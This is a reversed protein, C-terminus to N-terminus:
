SKSARELLATIRARADADDRQSAASATLAQELMSKAEDHRGVRLLADGLLECCQALLHPDLSKAARLRELTKTLRTRALEADDALLANRGLGLEIAIATYSDASDTEAVISLAEEFAANAADLDRREQKVRAVNNLVAVLDPHRALGMSRYTALVEGYYREATDLDGAQKRIMAVTNKIRALDLAGVHEAGHDLIETCVQEAEPVRN